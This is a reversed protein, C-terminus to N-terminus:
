IVKGWVLWMIFSTFLRLLYSPLTGLAVYSALILLSFYSFRPGLSLFHLPALKQPVTGLLGYFGGACVRLFHM